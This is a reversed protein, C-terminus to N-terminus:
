PITYSELGCVEFIIIFYRKSDTCPYALKKCKKAGEDLTKANEMFPFVGYWERYSTNM